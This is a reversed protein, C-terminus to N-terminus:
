GLLLRLLDQLPLLTLKVSKPSLLNFARVEGACAAGGAFSGKKIAPFLFFSARLGICICGLAKYGFGICTPKPVPRESGVFLVCLFAASVGVHCPILLVRYDGPQRTEWFLMYPYMYM